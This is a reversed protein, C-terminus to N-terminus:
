DYRNRAESPFIWYLLCHHISKLFGNALSVGSIAIKINEWIRKEPARGEIPESYEDSISKLYAFAEVINQIIIEISSPRETERINENNM